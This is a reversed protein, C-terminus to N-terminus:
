YYDLYKLFLNPNSSIADMTIYTYKCSEWNM